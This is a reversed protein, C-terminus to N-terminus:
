VFIKQIQSIILLGDCIGVEPKNWHFQDGSKHLGVDNIPIGVGAMTKYQSVKSTLSGTDCQSRSDHLNIVHNCLM